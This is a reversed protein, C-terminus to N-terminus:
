DPFEHAATHIRSKGRQEIANECGITTQGIAVSAMIRREDETAATHAPELRAPEDDACELFHRELFLGRLEIGTIHQDHEAVAHRLSEVGIRNLKSFVSEQSTDICM